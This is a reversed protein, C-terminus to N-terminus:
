NTKTHTFTSVVVIVCVFLRACKRVMISTKVKGALTQPTLLLKEAKGNKWNAKENRKSQTPINRIAHNYSLESLNIVTAVGTHLAGRGMCATVEAM